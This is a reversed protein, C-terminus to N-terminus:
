SDEEEEKIAEFYDLRHRSAMRYQSKRTRTTGQNRVAVNLSRKIFDPWSEVPLQNRQAVEYLENIPIYQADAKAPFSLKIALCQSYFYRQLSSTPASTTQELLIDEVENLPSTMLEDSISSRQSYSGKSMSSTDSNIEDLSVKPSVQTLAQELVQTRAKFFEIQAQIESVQQKSEELKTVKQIDAKMDVLEAKQMVAISKLREASLLVNM